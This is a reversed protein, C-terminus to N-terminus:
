SLLDLYNQAGIDRPMQMAGARSPARGTCQVGAQLVSLDGGERLTCFFALWVKRKESMGEYIECVPSLHTEEIAARAADGEDDASAESSAAKPTREKSVDLVVAYRTKTAADTTVVWGSLDAADLTRGTQRTFAEAEAESLVLPQAMSRGRGFIAAHQASIVVRMAYMSGSEKCKQRRYEEHFVAVNAVSAGLCWQYYGLLWEASTHPVTFENDDIHVLLDDGFYISDADGVKARLHTGSPLVELQLSQATAAGLVVIPQERAQESTADVSVMRRVFALDTSYMSGEVNQALLAEGQARVDSRDNYWLSKQWLGSAHMSCQGLVAVKRVIMGNGTECNNVNRVDMEVSILAMPVLGAETSADMMTREKSDDHIFTVMPTGLPLAGVVETAEGRAKTKLAPTPHM